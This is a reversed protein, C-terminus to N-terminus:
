KTRWPLISRGLLSGSRRRRPPVQADPHGAPLNEHDTETPKRRSLFAGIAAGIAGAAAIAGAEGLAKRALAIVALAVIAVLSWAIWSGWFAWWESVGHAWGFLPAFCGGLDFIGCDM